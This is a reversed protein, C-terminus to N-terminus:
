SIPAKDFSNNLIKDLLKSCPPWLVFDWYNCDISSCKSDDYNSHSNSKTFTLYFFLLLLIVYCGASINYYQYYKYEWLLLVRYTAKQTLGALIYKGLTNQLLHSTETHCVCSSWRPHHSKGFLGSLLYIWQWISPAKPHCLLWCQKRNALSVLFTHTLSTWLLTKFLIRGDCSNFYLSCWTSRSTYFEELVELKLM